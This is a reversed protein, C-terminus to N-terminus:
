RNWSIRLVWDKTDARKSIAMFNETAGPGILQVRKNTDDGIPARDNDLFSIQLLVQIREDDINRVPVVVKLQDTGPVREVKPRGVRVVDYLDDDAVVVNSTLEADDEIPLAAYPPASCGALLLALLSASLLSNAQM